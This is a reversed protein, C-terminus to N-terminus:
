WQSSRKNNKSSPFVVNNYFEKHPGSGLRNKVARPFLPYRALRTQKITLQLQLLKSYMELEEPLLTPARPPILAPAASPDSNIGVAIDISDTLKKIQKEFAVASKDFDAFLREYNNVKPSSSNFKNKNKNRNSQKKNKNKSSAYNKRGNVSHPGYAASLDRPRVSASYYASEIEGMPNSNPGFILTMNPARTSDLYSTPQSSKKSISVDTWDSAADFYENTSDDDDLKLAEFSLFTDVTKTCSSNTFSPSRIITSSGDHIVPAAGAAAVDNTVSDGDRADRSLSALSEGDRAGASSATTTPINGM